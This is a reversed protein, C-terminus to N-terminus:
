VRDYEYQKANNVLLKKVRYIKVGVNSESIGMIEAMERYSYGDLMLLTLSRDVADLKRIQDYLWNVREDNHDEGAKLVDRVDEIEEHGKTHKKEKASWNIATNLALRYLWTSVASMGKFNPVSRYVQLCIEQFLDNQDDSTIAYAKIVKFILARFQELWERFIRRQENEEM